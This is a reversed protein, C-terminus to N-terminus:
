KKSREKPSRPMKRWVLLQNLKLVVPKNEYLSFLDTILEDESLVAVIVKEVPFELPLQEKLMSDFIYIEKVYAIFPIGIPPTIFKPEIWRNMLFKGKDNIFSEM